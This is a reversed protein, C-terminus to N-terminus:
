KGESFAPPRSIPHPKVGFNRGPYGFHDIPILRGLTRAIDWKGTLRTTIRLAAKLLLTHPILYPSPAKGGSLCRDRDGEGVGWDVWATPVVM